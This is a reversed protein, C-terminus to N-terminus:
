LEASLKPLQGRQLAEVEDLTQSQIVVVRGGGNKDSDAKQQQGAAILHLEIIRSAAKERMNDRRSDRALRALIAVMDALHPSTLDLLNTLAAKVQENSVGPAM